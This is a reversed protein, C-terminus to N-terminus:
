ADVLDAPESVRAVVEIDRLLGLFARSLQGMDLGREAAAALIRLTKGADHGLVARALDVLLSRDAIGLVESVIDRTIRGDGVYAIVQDLLSLGDRWWCCRTPM